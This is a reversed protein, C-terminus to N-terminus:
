VLISASTSCGNGDTVVVNLSTYFLENACYRDSTIGTGWSVFGPMMYWNITYPGVGGTIDIIAQRCESIGCGTCGTLGGIFDIGGVITLPSAPQTITVTTTAECGSGDVVKITHTGAVLSLNVTGPVTASTVFVNNVFFQSPSTVPGPITTSNYTYLTNFPVLTTGGFCAINYGNFNPLSGNAISLAPRQKVSITSNPGTCGNKDKITLTYTDAVLNTWSYPSSISVSNPIPVNNVGNITVTYPAGNGGSPTVTVVGNSSGYCMTVPPTSTGVSIPTAPGAVVVPLNYFAGVQDTILVNYTGAPLNSFNGTNNTSSTPGTLTYTYGTPAYGGSGLVSLSGDNQGYCTAATQTIVSGSVVSPTSINFVSSVIANNSDKIEAVYTGSCLNTLTNLSPSPGAIINIGNYWTYTYPPTGGQPTATATGNCGYLANTSSNTANLTMSLGQPQQLFYTVYSMDCNADTIKLTYTGSVLSTINAGSYTTGNPGTWNLAYPSPCGPSVIASLAGNNGGFYSIPTTQTITATCNNLNLCPKQGSGTNSTNWIGSLDVIEYVPNEVDTYIGIDELSQTLLVPFYFTSATVVLNQTRGLDEYGVKRKYIEM